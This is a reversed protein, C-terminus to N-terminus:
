GNKQISKVKYAFERRAVLVARPVVLFNNLVSCITKRRGVNM